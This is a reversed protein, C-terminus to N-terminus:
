IIQPHPGPRFQSIKPVVSKSLSPSKKREILEILNAVERSAKSAPPYYLYAKYFDIMFPALVYIINIVSPMKFFEELPVREVKSNSEEIVEKRETKLM